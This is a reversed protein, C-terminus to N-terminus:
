IPQIPSLDTGLVNADPFEEAFEIAWIGTGTGFDLVNKPNRLPALHSRGHLTLKCLHHQLDLMTLNKDIVHRFLIIIGLRSM